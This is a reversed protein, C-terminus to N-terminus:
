GVLGNVFLGADFEQLDDVKEGVGIFKVPIGIENVVSIVFGARATGDLKTIVLGSVGIKENWTSAQAIANKGISADVVLLVEHPGTQDFKKVVRVMKQLEGMLNVNTHLRGSTDAIVYDVEDKKARHLADYLVGGSSKQTKKPTVIEVQARSAWEELQEKAAARFTDCSALLVKNGSNKLRLALKGITTTKGMGNAGIVLIVTPGGEVGAHPPALTVKARNTAETLINTLSEKLETKIDLNTGLKKSKVQQRLNSLAEEVPEVGMDATLLVEELDELTDEFDDPRQRELIDALDRALRERSKVLGQRFKSVKAIDEQAKERIYEVARGEKLADFARKQEKAAKKIFDFAARIQFPAKPRWVAQQLARHFSRKATFAGPPSISIKQTVSNKSILNCNCVCKCSTSLSLAFAILEVM